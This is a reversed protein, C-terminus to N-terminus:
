MGSWRTRCPAALVKLLSSCRCPKHWRRTRRWRSNCCIWTQRRSKRPAPLRPRDPLCYSATAPSARAPWMSPLARWGPASAAMASCRRSIPTRRRAAMRWDKLLRTLDAVSVGSVAPRVAMRTPILAEMDDVPLGHLTLGEMGLDMHAQLLGQVSLGGFGIRTTNLNGGADGLDASLHELTEDLSFGSALDALADLMGEYTKMDFKVAPGKGNATSAASQLAPGLRALSQIIQTGRERSLNNAAGTVRVREIAIKLPATDGTNATIRYGQASADTLVDVRGDAAPRLVSSSTSQDIHSSIQGHATTGNLDFNQSSSNLTSPSAYSPDFLAQGTQQGFSATYTIPGSMPNPKGDDGKVTPLDVTFTMPSPFHLDDIAWKGGDLPRASATVDLTNRGIKFPVAVAYHDGAPTIQVPREPLTVTPGVMGAVWSRLQTELAHAQDPTIDAAYAPGAIFATSFALAALRSAFM